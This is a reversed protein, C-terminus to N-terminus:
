WAARVLTNSVRVSVRISPQQAQCSKRPAAAWLRPRSLQALLLQRDAMALSPRFPPAVPFYSRTELALTPGSLREARTCQKSLEERFQSSRALPRGGPFYTKLAPTM